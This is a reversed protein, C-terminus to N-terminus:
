PQLADTTLGLAELLVNVAEEDPGAFDSLAVTEENGDVFLSLGFFIGNIRFLAVDVTGLDEWTHEVDLKLRNALASLPPTLRAIVRFDRTAYEWSSMQLAPNSNGGQYITASKWNEMPEPVKPTAVVTM